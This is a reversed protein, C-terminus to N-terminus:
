GIFITLFNLIYKKPKSLYPNIKKIGKFGKFIITYIYFGKKHTVIKM